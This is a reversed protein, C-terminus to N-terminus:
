AAVPTTLAARLRAVLDDPRYPKQIIALGEVALTAQPVETYGTVM